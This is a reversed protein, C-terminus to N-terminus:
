EDFPFCMDKTLKVTTRNPYEILGKAKLERSMLPAFTKPNMCDVAEMVDKKEHEQGDALFEFIKLAKGKLQEKMKDHIHANCTPLDEPPTLKSAMDKGKKTLKLTGPADGTAITGDKSAMRLILSPWTRSSIQMMKKIHDKTPEDIAQNVMLAFMVSLIKTKNNTGSKPPM